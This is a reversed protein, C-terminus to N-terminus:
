RQNAPDAILGLARRRDPTSPAEGPLAQTNVARLDNVGSMARKACDVNRYCSEMVRSRIAQLTVSDEASALSEISARDISQPEGICAHSMFLGIILVAGGQCIKM